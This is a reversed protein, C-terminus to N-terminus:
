EIRSFYCKNFYAILIGACIGAPYVFDFPVSAVIWVYSLRPILLLLVYLVCVIGLFCYGSILTHVVCVLCYVHIRCQLPLVPIISVMCYPFLFSNNPLERCALRDGVYFISWLCAPWHCLCKTRAPQWTVQGAVCERVWDSESCHVM